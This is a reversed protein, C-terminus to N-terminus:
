PRSSNSRVAVMPPQFVGISSYSRRVSRADAVFAISPDKKNRLRAPRRRMSPPNTTIVDPISTSLLILNQISNM